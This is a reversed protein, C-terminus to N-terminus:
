VVEQEVTTTVKQVVVNGKSDAKIKVKTRGDIQVTASTVMGAAIMNLTGILLGVVDQNEYALLGRLKNRGAEAARNRRAEDCGCNWTAADDAAKQSEYEGPIGSTQGCHRCAGVYMDM